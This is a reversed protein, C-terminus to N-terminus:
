VWRMTQGVFKDIYKSGSIVSWEQDGTQTERLGGSGGGVGDQTQRHIWWFTTQFTIVEVQITITITPEYTQINATWRLPEASIILFSLLVCLGLISQPVLSSPNRNQLSCVCRAPQEPAGITRVCICASLSNYVRRYFYLRATTLCRDAPHGGGGGRGGEHFTKEVSGGSLTVVFRIVSNKKEQPTM